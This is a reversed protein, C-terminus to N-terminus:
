NPELNMLRVARAFDPVKAKLEAFSGEAIVRGKDLYIIKDAHQVTSLRHAILIVTMENKLSQLVKSIEAETEADLSSTAEDLFM